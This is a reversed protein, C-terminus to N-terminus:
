RDRRATFLARATGGIGAFFSHVRVVPSVVNESVFSTTGRVTDATERVSGLLPKIEEELLRVLRRIEFLLFVLLGGILLSEFALLIIAVDRAGSLWM